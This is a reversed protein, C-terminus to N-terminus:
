QTPEIRPRFEGCWATKRVTVLMPDGDGNLTPPYRLCFGDLCTESPSFNEFYSCAVCKESESRIM